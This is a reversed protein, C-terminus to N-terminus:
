RRHHRLMEEVLQLRNAEARSLMSDPKTTYNLLPENVSAFRAGRKVLDIWLDWDEYGGSVGPWGAMRTHYGGVSRLMDTRFLAAYFYRNYEWLVDETVEDFPRDYGPNYAQNRPYEGQEQLGALVVDVGTLRPLTKEIYQPDLWDDADCPLFAETTTLMLATNRAAPLGRNTIRVVRVLDHEIVVPVESGDDIVLVQVPKVTQSLASGIARNLLEYPENFTPICVTVGTAHRKLKMLADDRECILRYM